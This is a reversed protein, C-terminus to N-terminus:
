EPKKKPSTPIQQTLPALSLLMIHRQYQKSQRFVTDTGHLRDLVGLVGFNQNFKLHHYDHAEPSPLLPLHYGCHAITTSMLALSFWLWTTSIHSGMLLPGLAPPLVNSILHELPHAYISVIGIPATWEHHRKHIQKYLKPHHLLRHTYYFFFEEVLSFVLIELLVWHFTPLEGSFSCGRMQYTFTIGLCFPLGVIFHNVLVVRIAKWLKSMEFEVNEQIKYKQLSQPIGYVDLVLFFANGLWFVCTTVLFTGICGFIIENDRGWKEYICDWNNQWFSGTAGWLNHIHWHFSNRAALLIFLCSGMIYLWKRFSDILRDIKPGKTKGRTEIEEVKMNAELCHTDSM